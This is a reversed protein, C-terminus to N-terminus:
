RSGPWVDIGGALDSAGGFGHCRLISAAISSRYGSKCYTLVPGDRPIADLNQLLRNLPVHVSGPIRGSNWEGETRVDVLAPADGRTLREKLEVASWRAVSRVEQEGGRLMAGAGGDLYGAIRDLGVRGLRLAAEREDGPEAVLVIEHERSLLTGAWVAYSGALAINISGDLHKAAYADHHRADLIVAGERRLRLVEEITRPQLLRSLIEDLTDREERNMVADHAFYAPPEPQDATVLRVFTDKSMPQLAYNGRRQEGITSVTASSLNRGCMSGAGHAPYVLTEDPLHLLKSRLSDYLDGAMDDPAIGAAAMLDPRGVDGIFLTDGTLVAHPQPGTGADDYV